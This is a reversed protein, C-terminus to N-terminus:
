KKQLHRQLISNQAMLSDEPLKAFYDRATEGQADPKDPSVKGSQLLKIARGPSTSSDRTLCLMLPTYHKQPVQDAADLPNDNITLQSFYKVLVDFEYTSCFNIARRMAQGNDQTNLKFLVKDVTVESFPQPLSYQLFKNRLYDIYTHKINLDDSEVLAYKQKFHGMITKVKSESYVQLLQKKTFSFSQSILAAKNGFAKLAIWKINNLPPLVYGGLHNVDCFLPQTIVHQPQSIQSFSLKAVIVSHAYTFLQCRVGDRQNDAQCAAIEYPLELTGLYKELAALFYYQSALNASSINIISIKKLNADYHADVLEVHGSALNYYFTFQKRQSHNSTTLNYIKDFLLQLASPDPLYCHYANESFVVEGHFPLGLEAAHVNKTNIRKALDQPLLNDALITERLTYRLSINEKAFKKRLDITVDSSLANLHNLEIDEMWKISAVILNRTNEYLKAEFTLVAINHALIAALLLYYGRLESLISESIAETQPNDPAITQALYTCYVMGHTQHERFEAYFQARLREGGIWQLAQEMIENSSYLYHQLSNQLGDVLQQVTQDKVTVQNSEKITNPAIIEKCHSLCLKTMKRHYQQQKEDLFIFNLV